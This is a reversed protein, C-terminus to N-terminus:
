ELVIDITNEEGPEVEVAIGSDRYRTYKKPIKPGPAVQGADAAPGGPGPELAVPDEVAPLVIQVRHSGAVAELSYSGDPGIKGPSSPPGEDAFLMVSGATLPEGRYTVTGTVPYKTPGSDGCGAAGVLMAGVLVVILGITSGAIRVQMDAAHIM